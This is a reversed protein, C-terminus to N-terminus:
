RRHRFEPSNILAWLIDEFAERRDGTERRYKLCTKLEIASPERSYCTRYLEITLSEDDQIEGLMKSLSTRGPRDVGGGAMPSNMMFLAQPISGYIEDRQASPDYGFTEDIENGVGRTTSRRM